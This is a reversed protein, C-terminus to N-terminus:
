DENAEHIAAIVGVAAAGIVLGKVFDDDHDPDHHFLALRGVKAELAVHVAQEWSSHGWGRHTALEEPTYQADHILLDVGDCLELVEPAM